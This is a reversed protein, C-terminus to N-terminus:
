DTGDGNPGTLVMFTNDEIKPNVNNLMEKEGAIVEDYVDYCIEKLELM